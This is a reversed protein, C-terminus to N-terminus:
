HKIKKLVAEEFAQTAPHANKQKLPALYIDGLEPLLPSNITNLHDPILIHPLVTLGLGATVASIKSSYSLSSLTLRWQIEARELAHIAKARYVCPQPSFVLPLLQNNKPLTGLLNKNGVWKLKESWIDLGNPLEEAREMKVLALDFDGKKFSQFLNASLDCKINLPIHPHEHVFDVLLDHLFVTAFDEPLGIHLEGKLAPQNFRNNVESHLAMIRRAYGLFIEGETTLVLSKGRKILPKGFFQELKALQQSIASQTRGLREAAKTFSGTSAVALFSQLVVTDLNFM